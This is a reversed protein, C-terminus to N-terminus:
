PGLRGLASVARTTEATNKEIKEQMKLQREEISSAGMRAAQQASFTGTLGPLKAYAEQKALQKMLDFRKNILDVPEGTKAADRIAQRREEELLRLQQDLGSTSAKITLEEIEDQLDKQNKARDEDAKRMEEDRKRQHETTIALREASQVRGLAETDMGTKRAEEMEADHKAKIAALERMEEDAILALKAQHLREDLKEQYDAAKQKATIEDLIADGAAKAAETPDGVAAGGTLAGEGADLSKLDRVRLQLADIMKNKSRIEAQLDDDSAFGLGVKFEQWSGGRKKELLEVERKYNDIEATLQAITARRMKANLKDQAKQLDGIVGTTKSVSLGLDGYRGQLTDIISSAREFEDNSLESKIALEQLEKWLALDAARMKDSKERVEGMSGSLEDVVGGFAGMAAATIGVAVAIGALVAIVPHAAMLTAAATVGHITMKLGTLAVGAVKAAGAIAIFAGGVAGIVIATRGVVQILTKHQQIWEAIYEGIEKVKGVANNLDGAIATGIEVAAAKVAEKAQSMQVSLTKALKSYARDTAGARQEMLKLDEEFGEMNRLAPLIGKLARSEPFLRALTEPPLKAIRQFVGALGEAQITTTSLQFGLQAAIEKAEDSPKLFTAIISNVSTIANDTKIGARTLVALMAGLEDLGVGATAATTAVNGIGSALEPFTSKGRDAVRFLWDSVDAAKSADMGYANLLTTIADTSTATDTLAAKASKVSVALVDMAKAPDIAAGLVDRLGAALVDTSEGFQIALNKVGGAFGSMFQSPDEVLTSVQAMATEFDAFAKAGAVGIAAIPASIGLLKRGFDGTSAAFMKLKTQARTLGKQLETDNVLLRVFAKGAEIAGVSM